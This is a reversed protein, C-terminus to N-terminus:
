LDLPQGDPLLLVDGFMEYAEPHETHVPVIRKPRIADVMKRLDDVVAHGSTHIEHFEVRPDEKIRKFRPEELYGSWMSYIVGCPSLRRLMDSFNSIKLFYRSPNAAIQEKSVRTEPRFLDDKFDGFFKRNEKIRVYHAGATCGNALVKLRSSTNIDPVSPFKGSVTRLVHATYMDVVFDRGTELCASYAACLRDVHRGSSILFCARDGLQKLVKAMGNEVAEESPFRANGRGMMTGEMLLVDVDRPPDALFYDFADKRPGSARFDGSYYVRKGEAEILLGFADPCSHDMLYPMIRIDSGFDVWERSQLEGFSCTLPPQQLFLRTAEILKRAIPGMYVTKKSSLTEILGFHDQHPHSIVIDSFDLANLDVTSLSEGLPSGADLLISRDGSQVQICVGGIERSGRHITIKM